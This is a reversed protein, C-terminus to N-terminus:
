LYTLSESVATVSRQAGTTLVFPDNARLLAAPHVISLIPIGIDGQKLRDSAVKGVAVIVKPGAIRMFEYLREECAELAFEPPMPDNYLRKQELPFCAIVNTM